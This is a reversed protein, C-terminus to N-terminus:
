STDHVLSLGKPLDGAISYMGSDEARAIMCMYVDNLLGDPLATTNENDAYTAIHVQFLM